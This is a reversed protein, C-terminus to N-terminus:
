HKEWQFKLSLERHIEWQSERQFELQYMMQCMRSFERQFGLQYETPNAWHLAKAKCHFLNKLHSGPTALLRTLLSDM